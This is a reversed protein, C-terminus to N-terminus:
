HPPLDNNQGNMEVQFNMGTPLTVGFGKIIKLLALIVLGFLGIFGYLAYGLIALQQGYLTPQNGFSYRVLWTFIALIPFLVLGAGIIAWRQLHDPRNCLEHFIRKAETGAKAWDINPLSPLNM